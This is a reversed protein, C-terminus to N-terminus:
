PSLHIYDLARSLRNTLITRAPATVVVAALTRATCTSTVEVGRTRAPQDPAGKILADRSARIMPSTVAAPRSHLLM